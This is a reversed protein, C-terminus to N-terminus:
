RVVCKKGNVIYMGAPLNTTDSGNSVLQGNMNYIGKAAKGTPEEDGFAVEDIGTTGNAVGDIFLSLKTAKSSDAPKFWCSFGRLGRPRKDSCYLYGQDFFYSGILNDRGSIIQRDKFEYVGYDAANANTTNQTATNGFTRAFTGYAKMTGNSNAVETTVNSVWTKTDMQSLDNKNENNTKFTVNPIDYHNAKIVVDQQEGNTKTLTAKYAPSAKTNDTHIKTPFIIYPTYAKLVEANDDKDMDVTQFQIESSTLNSLKALRANAGFAQRFQDRKLSVPLVFSNWKDKTFTKNLHLVTNKYTNSSCNMLYDLNDRDEDLILDTGKDNSAYLLRFDDFVTWENDADVTKDNKNDGIILGFRIKGYSGDHQDKSEPVQILVTNIYKRKGYFNKGAYDMNQESVHLEEQEAKSMYSVQNLVNQHMLSKDENKGDKDFWSAFIKAKTTTSYGKCEILYSGPAKIEVDQYIVGRLNKVDACFYKGLYREYDEKKNTYDYGDFTYSSSLYNKDFKDLDTSEGSGTLTKHTNYLKELGFRWGGKTEDSFNSVKWQTIDKNGRSFGPCKLRYSLNLASTMDDSNELLLDSIQKMTLVRWTSYEEHNNKTIDSESFAGCNKDQDTRGGNACLYYKEDSSVLPSNTAYTYIKYTNKGDNQPEFVWGYHTDEGQKRDIFVGDDPDTGGADGKWGLYQGQGTELNQIFDILTQDTYETNFNFRGKKTYLKYSNTKAWLSLPYDKLSVHTGWYGGANLFKGTKVNYLFFVKNPDDPLNNDSTVAATKIEDETKGTLFELGIAGQMTGLNNSEDAATRMVIGDAQRSFAGSASRSGTATNAAVPTTFAVMLAAAVLSKAMDKSMVWFKLNKKYM